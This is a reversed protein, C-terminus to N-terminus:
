FMVGFTHMPGLWAKCRLGPASFLPWVQEKGSPERFVEGTFWRMGRIVANGMVAVRCIPSQTVTPRQPCVM